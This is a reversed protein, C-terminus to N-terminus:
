TGRRLGSDYDIRRFLDGMAIHVDNSPENVMGEDGDDVM